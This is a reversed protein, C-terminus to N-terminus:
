KKGEAEFLKVVDSSNDLKEWFLVNHRDIFLVNDTPMAKNIESRKAIGYVPQQNNNMPQIQFNTSTAIPVNLQTQITQLIHANKLVITDPTISKINGFYLQGNNLHVAYIYNSSIANVSLLRVFTEKIETKLWVLGAAFMIAFFIFIILIKKKM